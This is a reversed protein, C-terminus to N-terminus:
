LPDCRCKGHAKPREEKLCGQRAATVEKPVGHWNFCGWYGPADKRKERIPRRALTQGCIQAHPESDQPYPQRPHAVHLENQSHAQFSVFGLSVIRNLETAFATRQAFPILEM